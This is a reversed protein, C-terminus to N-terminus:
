VFFIREQLALAEVGHLVLVHGLLGGRRELLAHLGRFQLLLLDVFHEIYSVVIGLM